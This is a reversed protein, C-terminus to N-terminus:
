CVKKAKFKTKMECSDSNENEMGLIKMMKWFFFQSGVFKKVIREMKM